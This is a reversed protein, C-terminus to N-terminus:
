EAALVLSNEVASLTNGSPIDFVTVTSPIPRDTLGPSLTTTLYTHLATPESAAKERDSLCLNTAPSPMIIGPNSM